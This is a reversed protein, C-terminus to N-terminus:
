LGRARMAGAVIAAVNQMGRANPHVPAAAALPVIPEIWRTWPATCANHDAGPTYTDVYVAGNAAAVRQLMANLAVETGNLYSIDAFAFPMVPWCGLGAAPLIDPYGVVFVTAQPALARITRVDTAVKPATADIRTRLQDTGGPDYRNKCPSGFPWATACGEIIAAFGIDNGGMQVTVATTTRGLAADQPENTGGPISQAATVDATTAGACSADHLSLGLSSAVLHAYDHDSRLCGPPSLTQDPIGPGAAYSDGVAVYAPAAAGAAAPAAPAFLALSGLAALVGACLAARGPV